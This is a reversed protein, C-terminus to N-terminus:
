TGFYAATLTPVDVNDGRLVGLQQALSAGLVIGGIIWAGNERWWQRLQEVTEDDTSYPDM